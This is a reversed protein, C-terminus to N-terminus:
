NEILKVALILKEGALTVFPGEVGTILKDILILASKKRFVHVYLSIRV